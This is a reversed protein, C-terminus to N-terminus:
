HGSHEQVFADLHRLPHNKCYNDLWAAVADSDLGRLPDQAERTGWGVGTLFGLVWQGLGYWNAARRDAREATWAGCTVAGGGLVQIGARASSTYLVPTLATLLLLRRMSRVILEVIVCPRDTGGREIETALEVPQAGTLDDPRRVRYRAFVNERM